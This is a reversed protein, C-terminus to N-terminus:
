VSCKKVISIYAYVGDKCYYDYQIPVDPCNQIYGNEKAAAQLIGHAYYEWSEAEEKGFLAVAANQSAKIRLWLGSPQTFLEYREDQNDCSTEKGLMIACPKEIGYNISITGSSDPDILSHRPAKEVDRLYGIRQIAKDIDAEDTNNNAMEMSGVWLVDPREVVEFEVGKYTITKVLKELPHNHKSM